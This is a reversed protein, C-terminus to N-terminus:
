YNQKLKKILEKKKEPNNEKKWNDWGVLIQMLFTNISCKIKRKKISQQKSFEYWISSKAHNKSYM